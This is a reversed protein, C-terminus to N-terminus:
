NGAHPPHSQKGPSTARGAHTMETQQSGHMMCWLPRAGLGLVRRRTALRCSAAPGARWALIPASELFGLMFNQLWHPLGTVWRMGSPSPAGANQTHDSSLGNMVLVGIDDGPGHRHPAVFHQQAAAGDLRAQTVPGQGCTKHFVALGDFLGGRAFGQFFGAGAHAVQADIGQDVHRVDVLHM